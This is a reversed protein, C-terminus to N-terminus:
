NELVRSTLVLIADPGEVPVDSAEHLLEATAEFVYYGASDRTLRWQRRLRYGNGDQRVEGTEEDVTVVDSYGAVAPEPAVSGGAEAPRRAEVVASAAARAANRARSRRATITAHVVLQATSTLVIAAFATWFM